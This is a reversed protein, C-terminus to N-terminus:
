MVLYYILYACSVEKMATKWQFQWMDFFFYKKRSFRFVPMELLVLGDPIRGTTLADQGTNPLEQTNRLYQGQFARSPLVSPTM